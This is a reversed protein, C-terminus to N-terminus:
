RSCRIGDRDSASEHLKNVGHETVYRSLNPNMEIGHIAPDTNKNVTTNSAPNPDSFFPTPHGDMLRKAYPKEFGSIFGNFASGAIFDFLSRSLKTIRDFYSRRNGVLAL